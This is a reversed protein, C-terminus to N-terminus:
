VAVGIPFDRIRLSEPFENVNHSLRGGIPAQKVYCKVGLLQSQNCVSAAGDLWDAESVFEGLRGLQRGASEVGVIVWDIGEIKFLLNQGVKTRLEAPLAQRLNLPGLLPEASLWLVPSLDRCKVLPSWNADFDRQEAVSAGLWVNRRYLEGRENRDDAQEQSNVEAAATMTKINEPRKTLVLWDCHPTRDILENYLRRRVDDLTVRKRPDDNTDGIVWGDTSRLLVNASKGAISSHHLVPGTWDEFVDALSACFIKARYPGINKKGNCQPCAFLSNGHKVVGKGGCVPCVGDRAWRDWKLPKAWNSPSTMVRTGNPGWEVKGYRTDMLLEAYCNACGAAVKACGIWPNFTHNTWTIGSNEAM